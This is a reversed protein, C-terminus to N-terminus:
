GGAGDGALRWRRVRLSARLVSEKPRTLRVKQRGDFNFMKHSPIPLSVIGLTPDPPEVTQNLYAPATGMNSGSAGDRHIM